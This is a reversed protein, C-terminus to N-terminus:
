DIVEVFAGVLPATIAGENRDGSGDANFTVAPAAGGATV